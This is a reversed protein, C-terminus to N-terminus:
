IRELPIYRIVMSAVNRKRMKQSMERMKALSFKRNKLAKTIINSEIEGGGYLRPYREM